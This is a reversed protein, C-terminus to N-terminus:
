GTYGIKKLDSMMNKQGRKGKDPTCSIFVIGEVNPNIVKIHKSGLTVQFGEGTLKKVLKTLDKSPMRTAM